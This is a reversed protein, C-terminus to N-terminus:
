LCDVSTEGSAKAFSESFLSTERPGLNLISPSTKRSAASAAEPSIEGAMPPGDTNGGCGALTVVSPAYPLM